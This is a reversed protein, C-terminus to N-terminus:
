AEPIVSLCGCCKLEAPTLTLELLDVESGLDLLFGDLNFPPTDQHLQIELPDLLLTHGTTLQLGARIVIPRPILNTDTLNGSLTLGGAELEIRQWNIQTQQLKDVLNNTEDVRLLEGLLNTLATALLPAKLSAQLDNATVLLKGAVPVTELLRLPKGKLLQGLNFRIGKGELELFSLHIGQYVAHSATISVTPIHGTLIQRNGGIINFQLNEVQEVQSRLWLWLAPSVVQSIIQNKQPNVAKATELM